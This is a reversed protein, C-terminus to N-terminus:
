YYLACFVYFGGLQGTARFGPGTQQLAFSSVVLDNHVGDHLTHNDCIQIDDKVKNIKLKHLM